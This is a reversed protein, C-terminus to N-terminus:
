EFVVVSSCRYKNVGMFQNCSGSLRRKRPFKQLCIGYWIEYLVSLATALVLYSVFSCSRSCMLRCEDATYSSKFNIYFMCAYQMLCYVCGGCICDKFNHLTNLMKLSIILIPSVKMQLVSFLHFKIPWIDFM